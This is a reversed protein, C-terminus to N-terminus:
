FTLDVLIVDLDTQKLVLHCHGKINPSYYHRSLLNRFELTSLIIDRRRTREVSLAINWLPVAVAYSAGFVFPGIWIFTVPWILVSTRWNELKGVLFVL